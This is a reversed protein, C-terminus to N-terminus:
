GLVSEVILVGRELTGRIRVPRDSWRTVPLSPDGRSTVLELAGLDLGELELAPQGCQPPYSELLAYCLRVPEGEIAVISGEVIVTKGDAALADKISMSDGDQRGDGCAALALVVFGVLALKM